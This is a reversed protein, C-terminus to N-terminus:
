FLPNIILVKYIITNIINKIYKTFPWISLCLTTDIQLKIYNIM